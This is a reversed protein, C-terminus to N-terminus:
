MMVLCGLVMLMRGLVVAFGRLVMFGAVVHLRPVVRVDRVPMESVCRVVSFFGYLVVSVLVATV